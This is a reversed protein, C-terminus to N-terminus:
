LVPVVEIVSTCSSPLFCPFPFFLKLVTIVKSAGICKACLVLVTAIRPQRVQHTPSAAELTDSERLLNWHMHTINFVVFVGVRLLSDGIASCRSSEVSAAKELLGFSRGTSVGGGGLTSGRRDWKVETLRM